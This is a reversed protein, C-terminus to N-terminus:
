AQDGPGHAAEVFFGVAALVVMIALPAPVGFFWWCVAALFNASVYALTIGQGSVDNRRGFVLLASLVFLGFAPINWLWTLGCLAVVSALVNIACITGVLMKGARWLEAETRRPPEFRPTPDAYIQM